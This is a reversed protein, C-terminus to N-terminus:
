PSFSISSTRNNLIREVKDFEWHGRYSAGNGFKLEGEGHRLGLM